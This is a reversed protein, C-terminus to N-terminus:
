TISLTRWPPPPKTSHPKRTLPPAALFFHDSFDGNSYTYGSDPPPSSSVYTNVTPSNLFRALQLERKSIKARPLRRITFQGPAHSSLFLHYSKRDVLGQLTKYAPQLQAATTPWRSYNNKTTRFGV